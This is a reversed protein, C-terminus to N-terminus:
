ETAVAELVCHSHYVGANICPCIDLSASADWGAIKKRTHSMLQFSIQRHCLEAMGDFCLDVFSLILPPPEARSHRVKVQLGVRFLILFYQNVCITQTVSTLLMAFALGLTWRWNGLGQHLCRSHNERKVSFCYCWHNPIPSLTVQDLSRLLQQLILPGTFM